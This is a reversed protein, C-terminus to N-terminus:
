NMKFHETILSRNTGLEKKVKVRDRLLRMSIYLGNEFLTCFSSALLLFTALWYCFLLNSLTHSFNMYLDFVTIVHPDVAKHCAM